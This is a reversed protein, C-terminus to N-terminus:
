PKAKRRCGCSLCGFLPAAESCGSDAALARPLSSSGPLCRPEARPASPPSGAAGGRRLRRVIHQTGEQEPPGACSGSPALEGKSDEQSM